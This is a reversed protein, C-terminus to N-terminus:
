INKDTNSVSFTFIHTQYTGNDGPIIIYAKYTTEASQYSPAKGQLLLKGDNRWIKNMKIMGCPGTLFIRTKDKDIKGSFSIEIIEPFRSLVTNQSITSSSYTKFRLASNAVATNNRYMEGAPYLSGGYQYSYYYCPEPTESPSLEFYYKQKPVLEKNIEFFKDRAIMFSKEDSDAALPTSSKTEALNTNKMSWLKLNLQSAGKYPTIDGIKEEPKFITVNLFSINKAEPVFTQGLTEKSRLWKPDNAKENYQDPVHGIVDVTIDAGTASNLSLCCLAYFFLSKKM